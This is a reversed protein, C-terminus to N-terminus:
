YKFDRRFLIAACACPQKRCGPCDFPAELSMLRYFNEVRAVSRFGAGRFTGESTHSRGSVWSVGVAVDCRLSQVWDVRMEMLRRGIGCGQLAEVVSSTNLSAVRKGSLEQPLESDFPLYYDFQTILHASAIGVLEDGRLAAIVMSDPDDLREKLYNAKFLGEGQTRNLLVLGAASLPEDQPALRRYVITNM